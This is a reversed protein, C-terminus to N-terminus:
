NKMKILKKFNGMIDTILPSFVVRGCDEEDYTEEGTKFYRLLIQQRDNGIPGCILGGIKVIDILEKPLINLYGTILIKDFHAIPLTNLSLIPDGLIIQIKDEIKVRKLNSKTIEFIEPVKEIIVLNVNKDMDQIICELYGSKSGLVLIKDNEEVDLLQAMIAIMHPAGTSRYFVDDKYFLLPRNAYFRSFLQMLIGKLVKEDILKRKYQNPPIFSLIMEITMFDEIRINRMAEIVRADNLYGSINMQELMKFLFETNPEKFQILINKLNKKSM